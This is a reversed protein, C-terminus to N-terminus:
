PTSSFITKPLPSIVAENAFYLGKDSLSLPRAGLHDQLHHLLVGMVEGGEPVEPPRFLVGVFMVYFYFM